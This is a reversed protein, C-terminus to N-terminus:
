LQPLEKQVSTSIKKSSRGTLRREGLPHAGNTSQAVEAESQIPQYRTVADYLHFISSIVAGVEEDDLASVMRRISADQNPAPVLRLRNIVSTFESRWASPLDKTRLCILHDAIAMALRERQSGAEALCHVALRLKNWAYSM